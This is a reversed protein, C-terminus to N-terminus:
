PQKGFYVDDIDLHGWSARKFWITVKGVEEKPGTSPTHLSIAFLKWNALGQTDNSGSHIPYTETVVTEKGTQINYIHWEVIAYARWADYPNNRGKAQFSLKYGGAAVGIDQYIEAPKDYGYEGTARDGGLRAFYSGAPAPPGKKHIVSGGVVVWDVPAGGPTWYEFSPNKVLNPPPPNIVVTLPSWWPSPANYVDISRVKVYYTGPKSWTHSVSVATGSPYSTPTTYTSGDDWDVTYKLYQGDPDTGQVSYTYTTGVTGSTPGTITPTNPVHNVWTIKVAYLTVNRTDNQGLLTGFDGIPNGLSTLEYTRLRIYAYYTQGAALPGSYLWTCESGNPTIYGVYEVLWHKLTTESVMPSFKGYIWAESRAFGGAVGLYGNWSYCLEITANLSSSPYGGQQVSFTVGVKAWAENETPIPPVAVVANFVEARGTPLDVEAYSTVVPPINSYKTDKIDFPPSLTKDWGLYVMAEAKVTEGVLVVGSLGIVLALLAVMSRLAKMKKDSRLNQLKEYASDLLRVAAVLVAVLIMKFWVKSRM